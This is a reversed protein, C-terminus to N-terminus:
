IFGALRVPMDKYTYTGGKWFDQIRGQQELVTSGKELYNKVIITKRNKKAFNFKSLFEKLIIDNDFCNPDLNNVFAILLRCKCSKGQHICHSKM